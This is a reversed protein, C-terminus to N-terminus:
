EEYVWEQGFVDVVVVGYGESYPHMQSLTLEIGIKVGIILMIVLSLVFLLKKM